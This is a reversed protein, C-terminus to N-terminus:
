TYTAYYYPHLLFKAPFSCFTDFKMTAETPLSILGM